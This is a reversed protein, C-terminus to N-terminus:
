GKNIGYEVTVTFSWFLWEFNIAAYSEADVRNFISITPLLVIQWWYDKSTPLTNHGHAKINM